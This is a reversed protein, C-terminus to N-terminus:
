KLLEPYQKKLAEKQNEDTILNLLTQLQKKANDTEGVKQYLIVLSNHANAYDSNAAIISEFIKQARNIDDNRKIIEEKNANNVGGGPAQALGKNYYLRGLEFQYDINDQASAIAKEIEGIAQSLKNMQEYVAAKAYYAKDYDIKKAIAEDFKKLAQDLYEQKKTEDKESFYNSMKLYGIRLFPFPNDSDLGSEKKYLKEAEALSGDIFSSANEYAFALVEYNVAKAPSLAVAREGTQIALDLINAVDTKNKGDSYMKNAMLIYNNTQALYYNDEYPALAIAKNLSNIRDEINTKAYSNGAYYEGLAMRLGLSFIILIAAAMVLFIIALALAYKPSYKISLKLTKIKEQNLLLTAASMLILLLVFIILISSNLTVLISIIFLSVASSFLAILIIRLNKEKSDMISRFSLSFIKWFAYILALAGLLGITALSEFFIGSASELRVNWLPSRNFDAGKYKSFSYNFTAPGSGLLPDNKLSSKAIDWSASRNLSIEAPLNLNINIFSGAVLFIIALIFVAFPLLLNINKTEVIKALFFMLIIVAGTVVAPWFVFGKAIVLIVLNLITLVLLLYKIIKYKYSKIGAFLEKTQSSFIVFLPLVAAAFALLSSLSDIPNFGQNKTFSLPIVYIGFIQLISYIILLSSSTIFGYLWIKFKKENLNNVVLYFVLIFLAIAALGKAPSGYSGLFSEKVNVSFITALAFVIFVIFAPLDFPTRSFIIEGKILGRVLWASLGIITLFFILMIKEFSIGASTIGLFFLPTLFFILFISANILWNLYKITKGENEDSSKFFKKLFFGVNILNWEKKQEEM